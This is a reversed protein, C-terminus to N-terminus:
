HKKEKLLQSNTFTPFSYDVCSISTVFPLLCSAVTWENVKDCMPPSKFSLMLHLVVAVSLLIGSASSSQNGCGIM